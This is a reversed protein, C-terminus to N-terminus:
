NERDNGGDIKNQKELKKYYNNIAENLAELALDLAFAKNEPVIGLETLIEAKTIAKAFGVSKNEVLSCIVDACAISVACGYVKFNANLIQEDEVKLYIRIIDGYNANEAQGMGSANKILGVNKPNLFIDMIKKSYM